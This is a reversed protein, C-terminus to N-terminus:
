KQEVQESFFFGWRRKCSGFSVDCRMVMQWSPFSFALGCIVSAAGSLDRVIALDGWAAEEICAQQIPWASFWLSALCSSMAPTKQELGAWFVLSNLNKWCVTLGTLFLLLRSSEGDTGPWAFASFTRIVPILPSPPILRTFRPGPKFEVVMMRRCVSESLELWKIEKCLFHILWSDIATEFHLCPFAVFFDFKNMAFTTLYSIEFLKM